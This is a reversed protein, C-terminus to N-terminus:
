SADGFQPPAVAAQLIEQGANLASSVAPQFIPPISFESVVIPGPMPVFPEFTVNAVTQALYTSQVLVDQLTMELYEAEKAAIPITNVGLFNTAYLTPLTVRNAVIAAMPVMTAYAQGFAAAQAATRGAAEDLQAEVVRLWSLYKTLSLAMSAAAPGLWNAQLWALQALLRGNTEGLAASASGFAASASAMPGPGAGSMLRGTIVEPPAVSM